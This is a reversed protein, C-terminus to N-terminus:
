TSAGVHVRSEGRGKLQEFSPLPAANKHHQKRYTDLDDVKRYVSRATSQGHPRHIRSPSIHGLLSFTARM